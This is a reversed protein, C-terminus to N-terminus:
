KEEDASAMSLEGREEANGYFRRISPSELALVRAKLGPEWVPDGLRKGSVLVPRSKEIETHDFEYGLQQLVKSLDDRLSETKGVFDFRNQGPPGLYWEYMRTVYAPEQELCKHIFQSFDDDACRELIRQPHWRPVEFRLWSGAQYKWWSEYWSLPHRVFTFRYEYNGPLQEPVAHRVSATPVHPAREHEIGLRNLVAEM